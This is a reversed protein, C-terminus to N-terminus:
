VSTDIEPNESIGFENSPSSPPQSSDPSDSWILPSGGYAACSSFDLVSICILVAIAILAFKRM